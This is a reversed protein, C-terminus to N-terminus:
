LGTRRSTDRYQCWECSAAGGPPNPRELVDMIESLFGSFAADDRPIEIWTLAGSLVATGDRADSFVAPEFVILGLQRVPSLALNGPAANELARAYAHLQRAYLPIHEDKPASTKFDIVAYTGNDFKVVTDLRGRIICTSSHGPVALPRSQVWSDGPQVVGNPLQPMVASTRKGAFLAKMQADILNFIRPMPPSPKRFSSVVKLYFCRECEEWLFAFDSPNLIWSRSSM